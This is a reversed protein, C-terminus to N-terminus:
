VNVTLAPSRDSDWTISPITLQGNRKPALSLELQTTSSARGNIIQLARSTSSGVIDFDQKLPTLDPRTGTQGDHALTLQVTEGPAVTPNDVSARLAANAPLWAAALVLLLVWRLRRMM